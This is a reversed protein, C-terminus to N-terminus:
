FYYRAAVATRFFDWPNNFSTTSISTQSVSTTVGGTEERAQTRSLFLGVSAELALEPIGIFGFQIEAGARAGLDLRFGSTAREMTGPPNGGNGIQETVSAFGVNLEPVVIFTYHKGSTLAIPVGGHLLLGFSSPGESEVPTGMAEIEGASGSLALGLGFDIGFRDSLWYRAGLVPAAILDDVDGDLDFRVLINSVGFWGIGFRGVIKQHDVTEEPIVAPATHVVVAAPTSTFTQASASLPAAVIVTSSVLDLLRRFRM